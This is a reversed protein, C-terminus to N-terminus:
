CQWHQDRQCKTPTSPISAFEQIYSLYARDVNPHAPVWAHPNLLHFIITILCVVQTGLQVQTTMGMNTHPLRRNAERWVSDQSHRYLLSNLVVPEEIVHQSNREAVRARAYFFHIVNEPCVLIEFEVDYGPVNKPDSVLLRRTEGTYYTAKISDGMEIEHLHRQYVAPLSSALQRSLNIRTNVSRTLVEPAEEEDDLEEDNEVLM